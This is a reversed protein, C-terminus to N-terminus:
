ASHLKERCARLKDQLHLVMHHMGLFIHAPVCLLYGLFINQFHIQVRQRNQQFNVTDALMEPYFVSYGICTTLFCAATLLSVSSQLAVYCSHGLTEFAM